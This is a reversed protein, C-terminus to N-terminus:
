PSRIGFPLPPFPPQYRGGKSIILWCKRIWPKEQYLHTCSFLCSDGQVYTCMYM